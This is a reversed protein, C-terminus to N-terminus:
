RPAHGYSSSMFSALLRGGYYLTVPDERIVPAAREIGQFVRMPNESVYGQKAFISSRLPEWYVSLTAETTGRGAQKPDNLLTLRLFSRDYSIILFIEYVTRKQQQPQLFFGTPLYQPGGVIQSAETSVQLERVISEIQIEISRYGGAVDPITTRIGSALPPFGLPTTMRLTHPQYADPTAEHEDRNLGWKLSSAGVGPSKGGFTAFAELRAADCEGPNQCRRLTGSLWPNAADSTSAWWVPTLPKNPLNRLSYALCYYDARPQFGSRHAYSFGGQAVTGDLNSEPACGTAAAIELMGSGALYIATLLVGTTGCKLWNVAARWRRGSAASLTYVWAPRNM